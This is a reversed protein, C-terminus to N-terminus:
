QIFVHKDGDTGKLINAKDDEASKILNTAQKTM